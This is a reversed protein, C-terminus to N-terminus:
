FPPFCRGTKRQGPMIDDTSPGRRPREANEESPERGSRRISERCSLTPRRAVSRPRDNDNRSEGWLTPPYASASRRTLGTRGGSSFCRTLTNMGHVTTRQTEALHGGIWPGEVARDKRASQEFSTNANGDAHPIMRNKGCLQRTDVRMIRRASERGLLFGLRPRPPKPVSQRPRSPRKDPDTGDPDTRYTGTLEPHQSKPPYDLPNTITPLASDGCKSFRM